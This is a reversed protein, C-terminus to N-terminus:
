NYPSQYIPRIYVAIGAVLLNVILLIKQVQNARNNCAEEDVKVSEKVMKVLEQAAAMTEKYPQGAQQMYIGVKEVNNARRAEFSKEAISQYVMKEQKINEVLKLTNEAQMLNELIKIKEDAQKRYDSFIQIDELDGTFNFRRMAVAENAVDTAIGQSLEVKRINNNMLQQYDSNLEGVKSYTFTSMIAVLAVVILFGGMIGKGITIRKM